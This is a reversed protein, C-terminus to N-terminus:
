HRTAKPGDVPSLELELRVINLIRTLPAAQEAEGLALLHDRQERIRSLSENLQAAALLYKEMYTEKTVAERGSSDAMGPVPRM